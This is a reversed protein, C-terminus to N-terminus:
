VRLTKIGLKDLLRQWQRDTPKGGNYIRIVDVNLNEHPLTVLKLNLRYQDTAIFDAIATAIKSHAFGGNGIPKGPIEGRLYKAATAEGVRPVGPIDDTDCGAIAKITKWRIPDMGFEAHFSERTYAKGDKGPQWLTVQNDVLQYLDKDNSIVHIEDADALKHVAAAIMDDAEFGKVLLRNKFGLSPLYDEKLADIQEQVGVYAIQEEETFQRQKRSAKYGPFQEARVSKKSDFCFVADNTMHRDLQMRIERLVGYVVGTQVDGHKLGGTTHYARWALNNVDFIIWSM